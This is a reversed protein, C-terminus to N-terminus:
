VVSKRDQQEPKTAATVRQSKILDGIPAVRIELGDKGYQIWALSKGDPSVAVQGVYHGRNLGKLVEDIHARGPSTAPTKAAGAEQAAAFSSNFNLSSFLVVGATLGARLCPHFRRLFM